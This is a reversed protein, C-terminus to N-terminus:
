KNFTIQKNTKANLLATNTTDIEISNFEAETGKFQYQVNTTNNFSNTGISAIGKDFIVTKAVTNYQNWPAYSSEFSTYDIKVGDKGKTLTITTIAKDNSFIRGGSPGSLDFTIPATVDTLSKCGSFASKGLTTLGNPIVIKEINVCGYFACEDITDLNEPLVIEGTFNKCDRFAWKGIYSLSNPLVINEAILESQYFAKEEIRKLSNPWKISNIKCGFFTYEGITTVGEEIEISLDDQTSKHWPARQATTYTFGIGTKGKTLM